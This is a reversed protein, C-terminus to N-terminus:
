PDTRIHHITYFNPLIHILRHYVPIPTQSLIHSTATVLANTSLTATLSPQST